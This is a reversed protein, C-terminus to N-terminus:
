EGRLVTMPDVAIARRTPIIIAVLGVVILVIVAQALSSLSWLSTETWHALRADLAVTLILGCVIGSMVTLATSWLVAGVIRSGSAGLAARVALERQRESVTCSVVCYLGVAALLLGLGACALFLMAALEQRAWGAIRLRETMSTVSGLPQDGNVEAIRQQAARALAAPEIAARAIFRVYDWTLLTYPVFAAPMVPDRLGANRSDAIVGIVEVVRDYNPSALSYPSRRDLGGLDIRRGIPDADAFYARVFAENVVAVHSAEVDQDEDWMRGRELPIRLTAFYGSSVRQMVINGNTTMVVGDITLGSRGSVVPPLTDLSIAASELGPITAMATRLREYYATREGWTAFTGRALNVTLISTKSPEYGLSAHTLTIFTRLAAASAALLLVTLTVQAFVHLTHLRRDSAGGVEGRNASTLNPRALELSPWLGSALGALMAVAVALGLVKGNITIDVNAPIAQVSVWAVLPPLALYALGVGIGSAIMSSLLSETLLQRVLRGSSAGLAKRMSLEHRRAIGRSTLLISLNACGIAFLVGVAAALSFIVGSLHGTASERLPTVVVRMDRWQPAGNARARRQLIASLQAAAVDHSMGPKLKIFPMFPGARPPLPIFVDADLLRIHPPMVGVITYTTGDLALSRGLVDPAGGFRERWYRASLVVVQEPDTNVHTLDGDFLRGLIPRAGFFRFGNPSLWAALISDVQGDQRTATSYVEWLVGSEVADATLMDAFGDPNMPMPNLRGSKDTWRLTVTREVGDYPYPNLLVGDVASYVTAAAAIGIALSLIGVTAVGRDRWLQRAAYRLDRRADELWTFSRADRHREKTQDIGGLARRAAVRAGDRTMGRAVFDDEILALHCGIERDLDREARNFRIFARLRNVLRTTM